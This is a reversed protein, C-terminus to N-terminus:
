VIEASFLFAAPCTQVAQEPAPWPQLSRLHVRLWTRFGSRCARFLWPQPPLWLLPPLLLWDSEAGPAASVSQASRVPFAAVAPASAPVQSLWASRLCLAAARAPLRWHFSAPPRDTPLARCAPVPFQRVAGPREPLTEPVQEAVSAPVEFGRLRLREALM